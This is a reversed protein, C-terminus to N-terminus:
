KILIKKILKNTGSGLKLFYVGTSLKSLDLVFTNNISIVQTEKLITQGTASTVIYTISSNLNTSGLEINFIGNSPNPYIIIHAQKEDNIGAITGAGDTIKWRDVLALSERAPLGLDPISEGGHFEVNNNHPQAQWGILLSDYNETSLTVFQFMYDASILSSINWSGIDQNFSVAGRFMVVATIVNSTDWNALDQNFSSANEFMGYMDTVNSTDWSSLNGNFSTAENFMFTMDTVSSTDWNSLDQDFSSAYAFTIAMDTVNSTDWSDLPQNFNEASFFVYFLSTINSIDWNGIYQNFSSAYMFMYEITTVNSTDWNGIDQNFDYAEHFMYKMDTVNSTDWNGIQGNYKKANYFMSSMTTVNSLDPVDNANGQLQECRYFAYHMSTWAQTGWQDISVIKNNDNTGYFYIRPFDGSIRITYTGPTSYTHTVSGTIGFEDFIGDNNWDVNYNYTLPNDTPITIQNDNSTGPNSTKWTTVFDDPSLNQAILQVNMLLLCFFIFKSLKLIM